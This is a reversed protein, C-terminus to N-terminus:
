LYQLFQVVIPRSLNKDVQARFQVEDGLLHGKVPIKLLDEDNIVVEHLRGWFLYRVRLQKPEGICPDYFGTLWSKSEGAPIILTSDEVMCQMPTTVDISTGDDADTNLTTLPQTADEVIGYTANVIVLGKKREEEERKLPVTCTMNAVDEMAQEMKMKSMKIIQFISM